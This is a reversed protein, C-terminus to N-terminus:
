KQNKTTETTAESENSDKEIQDFTMKMSENAFLLGQFIGEKYAQDFVLKIRNYFPIKSFGDNKVLADHCKGFVEEFIADPVEYDSAFDRIDEDNMIFNKKLYELDNKKM